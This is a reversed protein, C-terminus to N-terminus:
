GRKQKKLYEAIGEEIHLEIERMLEKMREEPTTETAKADYIITSKLIEAAANAMTGSILLRDKQSLDEMEERGRRMVYGYVENLLTRIRGMLEESVALLELRKNFDNINM